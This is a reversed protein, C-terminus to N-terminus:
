EDSSPRVNIYTIMKNYSNKKRTFYIEGDCAANLHMQGTVNVGPKWRHGQRTLVTGGKVQQGGSTKLGRTEKYFKTTKGGVKAM